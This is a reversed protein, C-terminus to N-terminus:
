QSPTVQTLITTLDLLKVREIVFTSYTAKIKIYVTLSM